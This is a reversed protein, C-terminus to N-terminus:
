KLAGVKEVVGDLIKNIRIKSVPDDVEISIIDRIIQLEEKIEVQKSLALEKRRNFLNDYYIFVDHNNKIDIIDEASLDKSYESLNLLDKMIQIDRELRMINQEKEKLKSKLQKSDDTTEIDVAETITIDEIEKKTPIEVGRNELDNDLLMVRDLITKKDSETIEDSYEVLFNRLLIRESLISEILQNNIFEDNYDNHIDGIEFNFEQYIFYGFLILFPLICLYMLVVKLTNNNRKIKYDQLEISIENEIDNLKGLMDDKIKNKESITM